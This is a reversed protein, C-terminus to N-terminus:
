EVVWEAEPPTAFDAFRDAVAAKSVDGSHVYVRHKFSLTEKNKILYDGNEVPLLGKNYDKEGFYSYGFPNAGMLGYGRVHWSTPYRLNTPHDFVALGRWGVGEMNGSYDCWPSPKGWTKSEGVDGLANTIVGNDYSLEPRMRIAVMGGEKTDNFMVDGYDARFTVFTDVLRGKEPTAYFRYEREETLLPRHNSDQWTNTAKVWGYADGSGYTVEGSHQFGSNEGEAWCDAPKDEPMEQGVLTIEGYAAYFSKHHPHDKGKETSIEAMPWDRTVGVQGESNVPWLFPKKNDNSYHYSTFHVDEIFVDLIPKEGQQKIRVKPFTTPDKEELEVNYTHTTGPMAGEPIFVFEGDRVTVPFRKGTKGEKVFLHGDLEPGGYPLTIPASLVKHDGAKLTIKATPLGETSAVQALITLLAVGAFRSFRM